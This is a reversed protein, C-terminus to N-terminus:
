FPAIINDEISHFDQTDGFLENLESSKNEEFLARDYRLNFEYKLRIPLEAKKELKLNNHHLISHCQDCICVLNTLENNGGKSLPVLHHVNHKLRSNGCYECTYNARKYVIKRISCWNKLYSFNNSIGKFGIFRTNFDM